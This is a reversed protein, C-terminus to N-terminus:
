GASGADVHAHARWEEGELRDNVREAAGAYPYVGLVHVVRRTAREGSLDRRWHEPLDAHVPDNQPVGLASGM